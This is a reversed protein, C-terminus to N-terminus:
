LNPHNLRVSVSKCAEGAIGVKQIEIRGPGRLAVGNHKLLVIRRECRGLQENEIDILLSYARDDDVFPRRALELSGNRGLGRCFSICRSGARRQQVDKLVVPESRM